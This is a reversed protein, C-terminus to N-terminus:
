KEKTIAIVRDIFEHLTKQSAENFDKEEIEKRDHRAKLSSKIKLTENLIKTYESLAM